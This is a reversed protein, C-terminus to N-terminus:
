IMWVFSKYEEARVKTTANWYMVNEDDTTSTRRHYTKKKINGGSLNSLAKEEGCIQMKEDSFCCTSRSIWFTILISISKAHFLCKTNQLVVTPLHRIYCLANTNQHLLRCFLWSEHSVMLHYQYVDYKNRLATNRSAPDMYMDFPSKVPEDFSRCPGKCLIMAMCWLLVLFGALGASIYIALADDALIMKLIFHERQVKQPRDSRTSLKCASIVFKWVDVFYTKITQLLKITKWSIM